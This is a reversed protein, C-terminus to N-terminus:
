WTMLFFDVFVFGTCSICVYREHQCYVSSFLACEGGRVVLPPYTTPNGLVIEPQEALWAQEEPTLTVMPEPVSNRARVLDASLALIFTSVALFVITLSKHVTNVM